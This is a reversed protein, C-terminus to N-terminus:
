VKGSKASSAILTRAMGIILGGIVMVVASFIQLGLYSGNQANLIAGQIPLGTLARSPTLFSAPSEEGLSTTASVCDIHSIPIHWIKTGSDGPQRVKRRVADDSQHLCRKYPRLSHCLCHNGRSLSPLRFPDMLM